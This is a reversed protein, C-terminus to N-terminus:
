GRFHYIQLACSVLRQNVAGWSERARTEMWVYNWSGVLMLQNLNVHALGAIKLVPLFGLYLFLTHIDNDISTYRAFVM